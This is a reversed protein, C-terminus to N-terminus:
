PREALPDDPLDASCACGPGRRCDRDRAICSDCCPKGKSCHKCCSSAVEASSAEPAEAATTTAEPWPTMPAPEPAAALAPVALLVMLVFVLFPRM